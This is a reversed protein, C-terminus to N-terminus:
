GAVPGTRESEAFLRAEDADSIGYGAKVFDFALPHQSRFYLWDATISESLPRNGFGLGRAKSDDISSLGPLRQRSPPGPISRLRERHSDGMWGISAASGVVRAVTALADRFRAQEGVVNYVGTLKRELCLLIFDAIDRRDIWQTPDEGDGPAVLRTARRLKAPWYWKSPDSLGGGIIGGARVVTAAGPFRALVM